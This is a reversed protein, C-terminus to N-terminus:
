VEEAESLIKTLVTDLEEQAIKTEDDEPGVIKVTSDIFNILDQKIMRVQATGEPSSLFVRVWIGDTQIQVDGDGYTRTNPSVLGEAVLDRGLVWRKEDPNKSGFVMHVAFPDEKDYQWVVEVPQNAGLSSTVYSLIQESHDM